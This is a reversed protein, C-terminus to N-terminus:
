AVLHFDKQKMRRTRFWYEITLGPWLTFIKGDQDQYWSQCGSKWVTEQLREQVRENFSSQPSAKVDIYRLKRDLVLQICQLIYDVQAEIMFLISNHGLGTNPGVLMYFNPFGSVAMGLYTESEGGWLASLEQGGKGYVKMPALFDLVRFGTGYIIADVSEWRRGDEAQVADQEISTLPSTVVEVHEQELAPYYTNSLLIRKCGITYDPTVTKRLEPDQISSEIHKYAMKSAFRLMKPFRVFALGQLELRFYILWRLWRLLFPFRSFRKKAKDSFARDNKAIIWPPTRQFLVLKKVKSAIAPVFQIASAGTGIVAVTKDELDFSHDWESSHFSAGVFEERGPINPYAPKNLPGTGTIVFRATWSQGTSSHVHWLGREEDFRLETIPTKRRIFPELEYKKVCHLIYELIEQQRGFLHSWKPYPEFSYSYLPSPVDCACGPYTNDRWTGGVEEGAEFVTFSQLGRLKLQIAMGLGSFGGGIIAVDMDVDTCTSTPNSKM